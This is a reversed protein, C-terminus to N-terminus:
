KGVLELTCEFKIVEDTKKKEKKEENIKKINDIINKNKKNKLEKDADEKIYEKNENVKFIKISDIKNSIKENKIKDMVNLIEKSTGVFKLNIKSIEQGNDDTTIINEISQIDANNDIASKIYILDNQNNPVEEKKNSNKLIETQRKYQEVKKIEESIQYKESELLQKREEIPNIIFIKIIIFVIILIIIKFLIKKNKNM